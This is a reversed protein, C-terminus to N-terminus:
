GFGGFSHALYVKRRLQHDRSNAAPVSLQSSMRFDHVRGRQPVPLMRKPNVTRTELDSRNESM